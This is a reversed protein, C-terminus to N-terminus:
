LEDDQNKLTLRYDGIKLEDVVVYGEADSVLEEESDDPHVLYCKTEKLIHGGVKERLLVKLWTFVALRGSEVESTNTTTGRFYM